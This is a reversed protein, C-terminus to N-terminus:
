GVNWGSLTTTNQFARLVFREDVGKDIQGEQKRIPLQGQADNVLLIWLSSDMPDFPRLRVIGQRGHLLSDDPQGTCASVPLKTRVPLTARQRCVHRLRLNTSGDGSRNAIPEHLGLGEARDLTQPLLNPISLPCM